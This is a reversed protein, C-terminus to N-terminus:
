GYPHLQIIFMKVKIDLYIYDKKKIGEHNEM